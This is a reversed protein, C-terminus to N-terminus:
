WQKTVKLRLITVNTGDMGSVVVTKKIWHSINFMKSARKYPLSPKGPWGPIFPWGPGITLLFM